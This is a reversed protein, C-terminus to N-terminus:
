FLELGKVLSGKRRKKKPLGYDTSRRGYSYQTYYYNNDNRPKYKTMIGGIINQAAHDLRSLSSRVADANLANSQVVFLTADAQSSLDLADSLGLVPPGDIIIIDFELRLYSILEKFRTSAILRSPDKPPDGVQILSMNDIFSPKILDEAQGSGKLYHSLNFPPPTKGTFSPLRLDADVLVTKFGIDAFTKALSLSTASKGEGPRTSTVQLCKFDDKGFGTHRLNACATAYAESLPTLTDMLASWIDHDSSFKPIVGLTRINLRQPLDDPSAIKNNFRTLIFISLLGLLFGFAASLATVIQLSPTYPKSPFTAKDLISLPVPSLDQQTLNNQSELLAEEYVQKQVDVASLLTKYRSMNAKLTDMHSRLQEMQESLTDQRKQTAELSSKAQSLQTQYTRNIDNKITNIGQQLVRMDPYDAKFLKSKTAYEKQLVELRAKMTMVVPQNRFSIDEPGQLLSSYQYEQDVLTLQNDSFETKLTQLKQEQLAYIYEPDGNSPTNLLAADFSELGLSQNFTLVAQEAQLLRSKATNLNDDRTQQSKVSLNNKRAELLSITKQALVNPIEKALFPDSSSFTVSIVRSNEVRSINLRNFITTAIDKNDTQNFAKFPYPHHPSSLAHHDKITESEIVEEIIKRSQLISIITAIFERTKEPTDIRESSLEPSVELYAKAQYLPLTHNHFIKATLSTMIVFLCLLWWWRKLASLTLM